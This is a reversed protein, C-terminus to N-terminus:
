GGEYMRRALNAVSILTPMGNPYRAEPEDHGELLIEAAEVIYDRPIQEEGRSKIGGETLFVLENITIM